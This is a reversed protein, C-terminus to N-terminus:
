WGTRQPESPQGTPLTALQTRWAGAAAGIALACGALGAVAILRIPLTGLPGPVFAFGFIEAAPGIVQVGGVTIALVLLVTAAYAPTRRTIFAGVLGAAVLLATVGIALAVPETPDPFGLEANVGIVLSAAMALLAGVLAIVVAARRALFWGILAALASVAAAALWWAWTRVAGMWSLTGTIEAAEGDIVLPVAWDFITRQATPDERVELPPQSAMWHSRHDHFLAVRGDDVRRWEPPRSTGELPGDPAREANLAVAPSNANEWVGQADLRLYPEGGYGLVIVETADTRVIALRDDGGVSLVDIGAPIADVQARYDTGLLPSEHALAMTPLTLTAIAVVLAILIRVDRVTAPPPTRVNRAQASFTREVTHGAPIPHRGSRVNEAWALFTRM